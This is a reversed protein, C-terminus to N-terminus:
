KELATLEFLEGFALCVRFRVDYSQGLGELFAVHCSGRQFLHILSTDVTVAHPQWLPAGILLEGLRRENGSRENSIKLSVPRAPGWVVERHM